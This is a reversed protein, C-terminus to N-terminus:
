NPLSVYSAKWCGRRTGRVTVVVTSPSDADVDFCNEFHTTEGPTLNLPRTGAETSVHVEKIEVRPPIAGEVVIEVLGLPLTARDGKTLTTRVVLDDRGPRRRSRHRRTEIAISMNILMYGVYAKYGFFVAAAGWAATQALDKIKTPSDFWSLVMAVRYSVELNM